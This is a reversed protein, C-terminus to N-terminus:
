ERRGTDGIRSSSRSKEESGGTHAGPSRRGPGARFRARPPAARRRCRPRRDGRARRARGRREVGARRHQEADRVASIAAAAASIGGPGARRGSSRPSTARAREGPVLRERQVRQHGDGGSPAANRPRRRPSRRSWGARARRERAPEGVREPHPRDLDGLGVPRGVVRRRRDRRVEEDRELRRGLPEGGAGADVTRQEDREDPRRDLVPRPEARLPGEGARDRAAVLRRDRGLAVRDGLAAGSRSSRNSASPRRWASRPRVRWPPSRM